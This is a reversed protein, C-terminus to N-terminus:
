NRQNLKKSRFRQKAFWLSINRKPICTQVSLYAIDSKSPYKDKDYQRKLLIINDQNIIGKQKLHIRKEKLRRNDLWKNIVKFSLNTKESLNM